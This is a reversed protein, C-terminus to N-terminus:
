QGEEIGMRKGLFWAFPISGAVIVLIVSTNWTAKEMLHDYITQQRHGGVV